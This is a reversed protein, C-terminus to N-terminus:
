MDNDLEFDDYDRAKVAMDELNIENTEDDNEIYDQLILEKFGPVVSAIENDDEPNDDLELIKIQNLGHRPANRASNWIAFGCEDNSPPTSRSSVPSTFSERSQVSEYSRSYGSPSLTTDHSTQYRESSEICHKRIFPKCRRIIASIGDALGIFIAECPIERRCNPSQFWFRSSVIATTGKVVDMQEVFPALDDARIYLLFPKGTLEDPDVHLVTDSLTSAYMIILNRTFRNLLLCVRVEAEPKKWRNDAFAQHYRKMLDFEKKKSGLTRAMTSHAKTQQYTYTDSNLVTSCNVLFDYCTSFVHLFHVAIGDKRRLKNVVQTAVLHNKVNDDYIERTDPVDEPVILAVASMGVIEDQDYGLVEYISPSAWLFIIEPTLDHFSIFNNALSM